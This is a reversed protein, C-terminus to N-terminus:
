LKPFQQLRRQYCVTDEKEISFFMCWYNVTKPSLYSSERIVKVIDEAPYTNLVFEVQNNGGHELLREIILFRDEQLDLLDVDGGWLCPKIIERIAKNLM